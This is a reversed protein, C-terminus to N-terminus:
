IAPYRVTLPTTDAVFRTNHAPRNSSAGATPDQEPAPPSPGTPTPKPVLPRTRTATQARNTLQSAPASAPSPISTQVTMPVLFKRVFPSLGELYWQQSTAHITDIALSSKGSGSVGTFAVLANKPIEVTINKLNHTRAGEVRIWERTM